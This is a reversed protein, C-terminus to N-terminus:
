EGKKLNYKEKLIKDLKEPDNSLDKIDKETKEKIEEVRQQHEDTASEIEKIRREYIDKQGKSMRKNHDQLADKDVRDVKSTDGRTGLVYGAFVLLLAVFAQWYEVVFNKVKKLFGSIASLWVM